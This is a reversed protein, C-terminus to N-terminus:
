LWASAHGVAQRPARQRVGRADARGVARRVAHPEEGPNFAVDQGISREIEGVVAERREVQDDCGHVGTEVLIPLLHRIAQQPRDFMRVHVNKAM